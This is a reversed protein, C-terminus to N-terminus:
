NTNSDKGINKLQLDQILNIAYSLGSFRGDYFIALDDSKTDKMLETNERQKDMLENIIKELEKQM